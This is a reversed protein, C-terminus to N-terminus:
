VCCVSIKQEPGMRKRGVEGLIEVRQRTKVGENAGRKGLTLERNHAAGWFSQGEATNEGGM